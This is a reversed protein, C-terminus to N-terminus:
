DHFIDLFKKIMREEAIDPLEERMEDISKTLMFHGEYWGNKSKKPKSPDIINNLRLFAMQKKTVRHGFEIYEAYEVPNEVDISSNFGRKELKGLKWNQRLHGTDKPTREQAKALCRAGAVRVIDAALESADVNNGFERRINDKIKKLAGFNIKLKM